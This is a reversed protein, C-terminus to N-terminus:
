KKNKVVYATKTTPSLSRQALCIRELTQHADVKHTQKKILTKVFNSVKYSVIIPCQQTKPQLLRVSRFIGFM